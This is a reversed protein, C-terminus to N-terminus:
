FGNVKKEIVMTTQSGKDKSFGVKLWSVMSHLKICKSQCYQSPNKLIEPIQGGNEGIKQM